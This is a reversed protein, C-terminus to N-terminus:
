GQEQRLYLNGKQTLTIEQWAGRLSEVMEIVPDLPEADKRINAVEMSSLMFEYIDLLGESIEFDMNLCNILETVIDQAKMLFKHANAADNKGIARKGLILDKKLGDYLMVILEAPSATLVGQRRYADQPNDILIPQM